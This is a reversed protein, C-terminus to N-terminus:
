ESGSPLLGLLRSTAGTKIVLARSEASSAAVCALTMIARTQAGRSTINLMTVLTNITATDDHLGYAPVVEALTGYQRVANFADIFLQRIRTSLGISLSGFKGARRLAQGETFSAEVCSVRTVSFVVGCFGYCQEERLRYDPSFAPFLSLVLCLDKLPFSTSAPISLTGIQSSDGRAMGETLLNLSAAIKVTDLAPLTSSSKQFTTELGARKWQRTTSRELRLFFVRQAHVVTAISFEHEVHEQELLLTLRPLKHRRLKLSGKGQLPDLSKGL